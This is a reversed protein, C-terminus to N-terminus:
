SPTRGPLQVHIGGLCLHIMAALTHPHHHGYGRRQIVRIKTNIGEVRSNSLGRAVAATIGDFHNRIRRALTIFPGIRSDTAATCWADLYNRIHRPRSTHDFLRYLDRLGEKLEWARALTLDEARLLALQHQQDPALREAGARLLFRARKWAQRSPRRTAEDYIWNRDQAAIDAAITAPRRRVSGTPTDGNRPIRPTRGTPDKGPDPNPRLGRISALVKDLAENTWKIVHFPDYCIQAGPLTREAAGRYIHSMDMTIAQVQACRDPGLATTFEEFAQQTRGQAVWVVRATDHDVVVTLYAHGRRYSIEDVGIRVLGQLRDGDLDGDLHEDVVRRVIADVTRWACRMLQAVASKDMRQALWAVQDEFATTHRAGPRAWPVQETRVRGCRRCSIRALETEVQVMRGALDLHRWRRTSVDYRSRTSWGCPCRHRARRARIRVVVPGHEPVSVAVVRAGPLALVRNFASEVRM